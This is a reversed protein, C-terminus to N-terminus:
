KLSYDIMGLLLEFHASDETSASSKAEKMLVRAKQLYSYIGAQTINAMNFINRPMWEFGSVDERKFSDEYFGNQQSTPMNFSGMLMFNTVYKKQLARQAASLRKGNKTPKWVFDFVENMADTFSFEKTNIGDSAGAFYPSLLILDALQDRLTSAPSGVLSLKSCVTKDDFWYTDMYMKELFKICAIQKERNVNRYRAVKDEATIENKYLGGVNMLVHNAYRIYQNIIGKYITTRFSYDEDESDKIWNMYRSMIYKLNLIGYSSAKIVDDGLDENQCSPDFLVASMQQKGYRYWPATKLSDTIMKTTLETEEDFSNVDFIPQYGWRIAWYDYKGFEPPTLKVGREKDGPQAVYNFRAYDMISTTTGYENSKQPDRLWEVPIVSSGSMNHMLGLTHGIEHKIVYKLGDGLIKKPLNATRVEIDAQSTQVFIWTRLLEIIDHYVYVSANIIEGSRPDVWSPGMANQIGLPAYRICSYRINDPDFSPDDTPFFRAVLANKFGIREFAENWQEVAAKIYPKWWEPFDNDIYYIIPKIPEVMEGRRFASTDSPELRWRNVLYLPKTTNNFSGLQKRETFFYGIRPDATRPHYIDKPLILISYTMEATLAKDKIREKGSRDKLTYRYSKSVTVSVNDKFSKTDIIYSLDKRYNDNREYAAYLAIDSFPSLSKDDSLFIDTVDIVSAGGPSKAEIKFKKTIGGINSKALASEINKEESDYYYSLERLFITSDSETFTFFKLANKSGVIGNANNSIARITSGLVFDRGLLSDPIEFYVKGKKLHVNLLGKSLKEEKEFLKEYPSKKKATDQKVLIAKKNRFPWINILEFAHSETPIITSLILALILIRMQKM